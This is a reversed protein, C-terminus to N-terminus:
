NGASLHLTADKERFHVSFWSELQESLRDLQGEYSGREYAEMIDIIQQLLAEHDAKHEDYLDYKRDRMMREELAFHAAIGAHVESFFELVDDTSAGASINDHLTNILAIMEQHEYDIAPLGIEFHKHWELLAM